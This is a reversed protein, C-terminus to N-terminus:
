VVSSQKCINGGGGTEKAGRSSVLMKEQSNLIVEQNGYEVTADRVLGPLYRAPSSTHVLTSYYVRM